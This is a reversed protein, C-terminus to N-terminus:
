EYFDQIAWRGKIPTFVDRSRVLNEGCLPYRLHVIISNTNPLLSVIKSIIKPHSIVDTEPMCVCFLLYFCWVCEWRCTEIYDGNTCVESYKEQKFSPLCAIVGFEPTHSVFIAYSPSQPCVFGVGHNHVHIGDFHVQIPSKRHRKVGSLPPRTPDM